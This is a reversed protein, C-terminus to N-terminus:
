PEPCEPKGVGLENWGHAGLSRALEINREYIDAADPIAATARSLSAERILHLTPWPSRNTYNALDDNSDADAFIYNPHFHAIQLIGQLGQLRLSVEALDVFDLFRSFDDLFGPIILLTTDTVEPEVDRLHMLELVLEDLLADTDAAVSVRYRIQGKVHVAKAFPCLNLGIM